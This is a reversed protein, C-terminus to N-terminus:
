APQRLALRELEARITGTIPQPRRTEDSVQVMITRGTACCTGDRYIAHAMTVSSTGIEEIGTCITIEDPWLLEHRFGIQLDAVVFSVGGELGGTRAKYLMHARGEELLSAYVANNIHGQRDTDGYRLRSALQHPFAAQPPPLQKM